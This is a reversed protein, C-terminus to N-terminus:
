EIVRDARVLISQPIKFGMAKATKLNLVLDFKTPQEIPLDGPKAGKLIKDVYAAARRFNDRYSPAYSMLGGAEAFEKNPFIAPVKSRLVRDALVQRQSAILAGQTLIFAQAGLAASRKFALEIDAAQRLEIPSVRMKLRPAAAEIEKVQPLGLADPAFLVAINTVRPFTEKLLQLRKAGLDRALVTLGTVNGGARALSAALGLGVPDSGIAFVIPVTKTREALMRTGVDAATLLLDPKSEVLGAALDALAQSIGNAYREDIVYDRGEIWRLEAMGERFAALTGAYAEASAGGLFGIRRVRKERQALAPLSLAALGAAALALMRRRQM